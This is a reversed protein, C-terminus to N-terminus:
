NFCFFDHKTHSQLQRSLIKPLLCVIFQYVDNASSGRLLESNKKIINNNQQEKKKRMQKQFLISIKAEALIRQLLECMKYEPCKNAQLMNSNQM